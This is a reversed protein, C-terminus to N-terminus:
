LKKTYNLYILEEALRLVLYINQIWNLIKDFQKYTIQISIPKKEVM